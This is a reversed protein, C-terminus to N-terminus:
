EAAEKNPFVAKSEITRNPDFSIVRPRAHSCVFWISSGHISNRNRKSRAIAMRRSSAFSKSPQEDRDRCSPTWTQEFSSSSTLRARLSLGFCCEPVVDKTSKSLAEARAPTTAHVFSHAPTAFILKHDYMM